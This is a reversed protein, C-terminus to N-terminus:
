EFPQEVLRLAGQYQRRSVEGRQARGFYQQVREGQTPHHEGAEQNPARM